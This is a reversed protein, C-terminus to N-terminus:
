KLLEPHQHCNGIIIFSDSEAICDIVPTEGGEKDIFVVGYYPDISVICNGLGEVHCIDSGYMEDSNLDFLGTFQMVEVGLDDTEVNQWFLVNFPESSRMFPTVRPDGAGHHWARFKLERM